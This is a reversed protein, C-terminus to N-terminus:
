APSDSVSKNKDGLKICMVPNEILYVDKVFPFYTDHGSSLFRLFSSSPWHAYILIPRSKALSKLFHIFAKPILYLLHKHYRNRPM